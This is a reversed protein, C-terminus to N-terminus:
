GGASGAGARPMPLRARRPAARPEVLWFTEPRVLPPPLRRDRTVARYDAVSCGDVMIPVTERLSAIAGWRAQWDDPDGVIIGPADGRSVTLPGAPEENV